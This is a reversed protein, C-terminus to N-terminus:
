KFFYIGFILLVGAILLAEKEDEHEVTAKAQHKGGFPDETTHKQSTSIKPHAKNSENIEGVSANEPAILINNNYNQIKGIQLKMNSPIMYCKPMVVFNVPTQAYKLMSQFKNIDNQISEPRKILTELEQLYIQHVTFNSAENGVISARGQSQSGLLLRAYLRISESFKTLGQRTLGESTPMIWKSWDDNETIWYNDTKEDWSKSSSQSKYLAKLDAGYTPRTV